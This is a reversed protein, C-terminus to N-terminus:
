INRLFGLAAGAAILMWKEAVFTRRPLGEFEADSLKKVRATLTRELDLAGM